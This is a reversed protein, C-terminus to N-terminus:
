TFLCCSLSSFLINFPQHFRGCLRFETNEVRICAWGLHTNYSQNNYQWVVRWTYAVSVSLEFWSISCQSNQLFFECCVSKESDEEALIWLCLWRMNKMNDSMLKYMYKITQTLLSRFLVTLLVLQHKSLRTITMMLSSTFQTDDTLLCKIVPVLLFFCTKSGWPLYTM